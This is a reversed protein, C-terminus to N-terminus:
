SQHVRPERVDAAAIEVDSPPNTDKVIRASLYPTRFSAALGRVWEEPDDDRTITRGDRLSLVAQGRDILEANPGDVTIECGDACVRAAIGAEGVEAEGVRRRRILEVIVM